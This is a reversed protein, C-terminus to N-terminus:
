KTGEWILTMFTSNDEPPEQEFFEDDKDKSESFSLSAIVVHDQLIALTWDIQLFAQYSSSISETVIKLREHMASNFKVDSM